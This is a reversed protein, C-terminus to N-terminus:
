QRTQFFVGRVLIPQRGPGPFVAVAAVRGYGVRGYGVRGHGLRAPVIHARHGVDGVVPQQPQRGARTSTSVTPQQVEPMVTVSKRAGAALCFARTAVAM